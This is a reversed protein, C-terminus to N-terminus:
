DACLFIYFNQFIRLKCEFKVFKIRYSRELKMIYFETIVSISLLIACIGTNAFHVNVWLVFEKTNYYSYVISYITYVNIIIISVTMNKTFDLRNIISKAVILFILSMILFVYLTKRPYGGNLYNSLASILIVLAFLIEINTLSFKEKRCVNIITGCVILLGLIILVLYENLMFLESSIISLPILAFVSYSYYKDINRNM